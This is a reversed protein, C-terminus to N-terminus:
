YDIDVDVDDEFDAGDIVPFEKDILGEEYLDDDEERDGYEEDLKTDFSIAYEDIEYELCDNFDYTHQDESLKELRFLSLSEGITVDAKKGDLIRKIHVLGDFVYWNRFKYLEDVYAIRDSETDDANKLLGLLAQRITELMTYIEIGDDPIGLLIDEFYNDTLDILTESDTEALFKYFLEYPIDEDCEILTAFHEFYGFEDPSEIEFMDLLENYDM